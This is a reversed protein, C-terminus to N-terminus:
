ASLGGYVAQGVQVGIAEAGSGTTVEFAGGDLRAIDSRQALSPPTGQEDLLRTLEHEVAEGIRYRDGPAFGSLVLEEIHLEINSRM